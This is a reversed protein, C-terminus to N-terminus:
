QVFLVTCFGYSASIFYAVYVKALAITCIAYKILPHQVNSTRYPYAWADSSISSCPGRRLICNTKEKRHFQPCSTPAGVIVTPRRSSHRVTVPIPYFHRQELLLPAAAKDQLLFEACVCSWYRKRM